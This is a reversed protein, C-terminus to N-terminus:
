KTLTHNLVKHSMSLSNMSRKGTKGKNIILASKKLLLYKKFNLGKNNFHPKTTKWFKRKNSLNKLNFIELIIRWDWNKISQNRNYNDKLKSRLMIIAKGLTKTMHLHNCRPMSKKIPAYKHLLSTFLEHFSSYCFATDINSHELSFINTLLNPNKSEITLNFVGLSM